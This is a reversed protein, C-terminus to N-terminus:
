DNDSSKYNMNEHKEDTGIRIEYHDVGVMVGGFEFLPKSKTKEDYEKVDIRFTYLNDKIKDNCLNEIQSITMDEPITGRYKAIVIVQKM